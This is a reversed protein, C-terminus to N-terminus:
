EGGGGHGGRDGFGLDFLHSKSAFLVARTNGGGGGGRDGYGLLCSSLFIHLYIIGLMGGRDGGFGKECWTLVRIADVFDLLTCVEAEM